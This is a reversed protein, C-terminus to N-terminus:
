VGTTIDHCARALAAAVGPQNMITPMVISRMGADEVAATLERDLEDILFRPCFIRVSTVSGGVAGTSRLTCSAMSRDSTSRWRAGNGRAGGVM